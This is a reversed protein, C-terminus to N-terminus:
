REKRKQDVKFDVDAIFSGFPWQGPIQDIIGGRSRRRRRLWRDLENEDLYLSRIKHALVLDAVLSSARDLVKSSSEDMWDLIEEKPEACLLVSLAGHHSSAAGQNDWVGRYTEAEDVMYHYSRVPANRKHLNNAVGLAAKKESTTWSLSLIIATPKHKLNVHRAQVFPVSPPPFKKM